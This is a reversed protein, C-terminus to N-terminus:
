LYFNDKLLILIGKKLRQPYQKNTVLIMGDFPVHCDTKELEENMMEQITDDIEAHRLITIIIILLLFYRLSKGDPKGLFPQFYYFKANFIKQKKPFM